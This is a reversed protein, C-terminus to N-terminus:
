SWTGCEKQVAVTTFLAFSISRNANLHKMLLNMLLIVVHISSGRM